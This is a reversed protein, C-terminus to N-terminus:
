LSPVAPRSRRAVADPRADPRVGARRVRPVRDRRDRAHDGPVPAGARRRDRPPRARGGHPLPRDRRPPRPHHPDRRRGHDAHPLHRVAAQVAAVGGAARTGRGVHHPRGPLRRPGGELQPAGDRADRRPARRAAHAGRPRARLERDGGRRRAGRPQGLLLDAAAGRRRRRAPDHARVRPAALRPARRPQLGAHPAGQPRPDARVGRRLGAGRAAGRAVRRALAAGRLRPRDGEGRARVGRAAHARVAVPVGLPPVRGGGRGRRGAHRRRAPCVGRRAGRRRARRPA